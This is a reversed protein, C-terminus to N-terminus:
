LDRRNLSKRFFFIIFGTALIFHLVEFAINVDVPNKYLFHNSLLNMLGVHPVFLFLILATIKAVSLGVFFESIPLTLYYSHSYSLLGWFLIMTLMSGMSNLYFSMIFSLAIWFFIAVGSCFFSFVHGWELHLGKGISFFLIITLLYSYLYLGYVMTWTGLLRSMFYQGRSIPFSLYQYIIQSDIDSRISKVGFYISIFAIWMNLFSFMASIVMSAQPVTSADPILQSFILKIISYAVFICFTSVIFIFILTKNRLEKKLTDTYLAWLQHNVISM